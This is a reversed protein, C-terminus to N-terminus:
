LDDQIYLKGLQITQVFSTGQLELESYYVGSTQLDWTQVTYQLVGSTVGTITCIGSASVYDSNIQKTKFIVDKGTLDYPTNDENTINFEIDFGYDNRTLPPFQNFSGGDIIILAKM